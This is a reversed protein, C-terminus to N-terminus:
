AAFSTYGSDKAYQILAKTSGWLNPKPYNKSRTKLSSRIPFIYAGSSTQDPTTKRQGTYTHVKSPITSFQTIVRKSFIRMQFTSDWERRLNTSWIKRFILLRLTRRDQRLQLRPFRPKLCTSCLLFLMLAVIVVAVKKFANKM